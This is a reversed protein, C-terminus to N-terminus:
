TFTISKLNKAITFTHGMSLPVGAASEIGAATITLTGGLAFKQNPKFMLIVSSSSPFMLSSIPVNTMTTTKGLKVNAVLKYSANQLSAQNMPVSFTLLFGVVTPKAKKSKPTSFSRAVSVIMPAPASPVVTIPSSVTALNGSTFRLTITEALTDALNSFTAVGGVVTASANGQLLGAGDLSVTVVSSNDSKELNGYQDEEVVVPQTGFAQGATASPSPETSIVLKAAAAPNVVINDSILTNLGNSTFRLAITEALDDALSSFTAVGNALTVPTAAGLLPGVGSTLAASVQTSSDTTVRNHFQDEEWIVAGFLQGAQVSAPPETKIVLQAPAAPNIVVSNSPGATLGAGAFNLAITEATDDVLNNFTAVGGSVTVVKTGMLPGVGSALLASIQTGNDATELNGFKDEEHIVAGFAQGATGSSPPETYIYLQSLGAPSVFVPNSALSTVGNGTFLLELTGATDDVLGTFTAVGANVTAQTGELTAPGNSPAATIVTSNDSTEVNGNADVESIVVSMGFEQGATASSPPQVQISLRAAAGPSVVIKGSPGATFSTGLVAFNLSITEALDDALNTFTAVGGQATVTTDQLPGTGSALTATVQSSNDGTELNNYQDLEWIVPQTGFAQGALASPSPQTHIM